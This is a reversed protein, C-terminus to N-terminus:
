RIRSVPLTEAALFFLLFSNHILIYAIYATIDIIGLLVAAYRELIKGVIIDAGEAAYTFFIEALFSRSILM